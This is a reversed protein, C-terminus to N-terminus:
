DGAECHTRETDVPNRKSDRLATHRAVYDSARVEVASIYGTDHATSIKAWGARRILGKVETTTAPSHESMAGTPSGYPYLNGMVVNRAGMASAAAIAADFISPWQAAWDIYPPNTCVFITSADTAAQVFTAPDSADLVLTTPGVATSGSRTAITVTYGRAALREALPCGILGAGVVLHKNMPGNAEDDRAEGQFIRRYFGIANAALSERVDGPRKRVERSLDSTEYHTRNVPM